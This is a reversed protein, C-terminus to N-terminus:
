RIPDAPAASEVTTLLDDISFPKRLFAAAGITRAEARITALPKASLVVIPPLGNQSHRLAEVMQVGSMDPLMLDLIIVDPLAAGAARDLLAIAAAGTGVWQVRHNRRDMIVIMAEASDAHDEVLLIRLSRGADRGGKVLRLVPKETTIPDRM